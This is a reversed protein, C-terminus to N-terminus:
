GACSTVTTNMLRRIVEATAMGAGGVVAVVTPATAGMAVLATAILLVAVVIVSSTRAVVELPGVCCTHPLCMWRTVPTAHQEQAHRCCGHDDFM